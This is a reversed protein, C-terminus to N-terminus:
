LLLPNVVVPDQPNKAAYSIISMMMIPSQTAGVNVKCGGYTAFQSGFLAWRKDDMGRVVQLEDGSDDVVDSADEGAFRVTLDKVEIM